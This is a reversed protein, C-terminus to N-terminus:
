CAVHLGMFTGSMTGMKGQGKDASNGAASRAQVSRILGDVDADADGDDDADDM